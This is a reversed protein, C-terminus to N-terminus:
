FNMDDEINDLINLYSMYRFPSIKEDEVAEIVACGPEHHHTCTNFKCDNLYDKFDIFYHSLDEKKIGYPEIERMGPTDIVFTSDSIRSMVSTVTTHKGKNSWESIEGVKLELEPYLKNLLSSKGVGSPGWFLSTNNQLKDKLNSIGINNKVSITLLEYGISQYIEQWFTSEDTEDLDIKNIVTIVNIHNSEAVVLLRDLVKNNFEPQNISTVVVLNDINSAVIQELREGRQLSGKIKPAKRSIYNKREHVKEIVGSGDQNIQFEVVDGVVVLDFTILKDKKHHLEKKFKGRLSCIIDKGEETFVYFNRSEVRTVTGKIM